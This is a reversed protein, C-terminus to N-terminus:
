KKNKPKQSRVLGDFRFKELGDSHYTFTGKGFFQEYKVRHDDGYQIVKIKPAKTRGHLARLFLSRIAFDEMPLSYGAIIWEDAIRLEEASLRWIQLINSDRYERIYSPTVLVPQLPWYGCHCQTADNKRNELPLGYIDSTPNIYIFGCRPCKLWDISGHLKFMKYNAEPSRYYVEGSRVDRWNFGYDFLEDAINAEGYELINWEISCDYNTSIVTVQKTRSTKGNTKKLKNSDKIWNILPDLANAKVNGKDYIVEIIALDLLTIHDPLTLREDLPSDERLKKAKTEFNWDILDQQASWMYMSQSLIDTIQPLGDTRGENVLNAIGPSLKVLFDRLLTCYYERLKKSASSFLSNDKIRDVILPLIESVLPYGFAKSCGAGTFLVTRHMANTKIFLLSM